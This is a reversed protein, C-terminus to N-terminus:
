RNQGQSSENRLPFNITFCAGKGPQSSVEINGRHNKVIGYSVALGLGTGKEKTSFFPEFVKPLYEPLIGCGTDSIVVKVINRKSIMDSKVTIKGQGPTAQIANLLINVLVQEVQNADLSIKEIQTSLNKDVQIRQLRFENELISLAKEIIENIDAPVVRPEKNRSFELLEQIITKCRIAERIIVDLGEKLPGQEQVKKRLNTSFLLIGALPNNIEHAIGAALRGLASMKETQLALQDYRMRQNEIFRVQNIACASQEAIYVMFSKEEESFDRQESLFIRIIGIIQEELTLPVDLMLRVGEDWAAQPYEVRPAKWIDEIVVVRDPGDLDSLIKETSVPGKSLYLEGLGYAAAVEFQNSAPNLVRLLAGKASLAQTSKWVVRQLVERLTKGSHV